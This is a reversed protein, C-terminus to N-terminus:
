KIHSGGVPHKHSIQSMTSISSVMHSPTNPFICEKGFMLLFMIKLKLRVESEITVCHTVGGGPGTGGDMYLYGIRNV